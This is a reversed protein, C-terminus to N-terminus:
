WFRTFGNNAALRTVVDLSLCVFAAASLADALRQGEDGALGRAMFSGAAVLLYAWAVSPSFLTRQLWASLDRIVRTFRLV